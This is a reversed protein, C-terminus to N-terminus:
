PLCPLWLYRNIALKSGRTVKSAVAVGTTFFALGYFLYLLFFSFDSMTHSM